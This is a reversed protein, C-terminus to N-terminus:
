EEGRWGLDKHDDESAERVYTVKGTECGCRSLHGGPRPSVEYGCSRAIDKIDNGTCYSGENRHFHIQEEDWYDSVSAVFEIELRLVVTRQRMVCDPLHEQGAVCIGCYFCHDPSGAPRVGNDKIELKM